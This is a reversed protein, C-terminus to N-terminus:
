RLPGPHKDKEKYKSIHSHIALLMIVNLANLQLGFIQSETSRTIVILCLEYYQLQFILLYNCMYNNWTM